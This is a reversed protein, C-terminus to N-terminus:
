YLGYKTVAGRLRTYSFGKKSWVLIMRQGNKKFYWGRFTDFALIVQFIQAFVQNISLYYAMKM